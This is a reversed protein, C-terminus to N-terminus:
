ETISTWEDLGRLSTPEVPCRAPPFFRRQRVGFPRQGFLDIWREVGTILERLAPSRVVEEQSVYHSALVPNKQSFHNVRSFSSFRGRWEPM